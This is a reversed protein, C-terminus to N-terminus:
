QTGCEAAPTELVTEFHAGEGTRFGPNLEIRKGARFIVRASDQIRYQGGNGLTDTALVYAFNHKLVVDGLWRKIRPVRRFRGIQPANANLVAANNHVGSEGLPVGRYSVAPNSFYPIVDCGLEGERFCFADDYVGIVTSLSAQENFAWKFGHGTVYPASDVEDASEAIHGCGYLHAMQHSLAYNERMCRYNVACFATTGNALSDDFLPLGCYDDNALVLAAVDAHYRNRLQAISVDQSFRNLDDAFCAGEWNSLRHIRVLRVEHRVESYILVRNMEAVASAIEAVAASDGGLRNAVESTYAVLLDVSCEQARCPLISGLLLLLVGIMRTTKM